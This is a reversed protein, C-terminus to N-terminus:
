GFWGRAWSDVEDRYQDEIESKHVMTGDSKRVWNDGTNSNIPTAGQVIDAVLEIYPEMVLLIIASSTVTDDNGSAANTDGDEGIVYKICEKIMRESKCGIQRERILKAMNDIMLPKTKPSTWWGLEEHQQDTVKDHTTRKYMNNYLHKMANITSLGHNNEEVAILADNYWTGLQILIPDGLKDPDVHGHWMAVLNKDADWVTACSYDGDAKGKAVDVGIFYEANRKPTKWVELNGNEDPIFRVNSAPGELYGVTGPVCHKLYEMLVEVDFRPRGSALFAEEATCPYEQPLKDRLDKWKGYYWYLQEWDLGNYTLLLYLKKHFESIKNTVDYKFQDEREKDEFPQRYEPTLWWEYFKPEWNNEGKEAADWMDKYENLGNATTELIQISDKTLAEGLGTMISDISDWFAAESGHFFNITKSRGVEKNGATSVRWRSNLKEFHFERRNNYKETPKLADPLQNYIYKAKDEFITNTNDGSDALTFGSFNKGIIANALQYATIFSTFGQQRGKLVLFKLHLRKKAKYEDKAKNIDDLFSQQVENLFFPVTNKDKDVIVFSIEILYEPHRKIEERVSKNDPNIIYEISATVFETDKEIDRTENWIEKRKNIIDKCTRM